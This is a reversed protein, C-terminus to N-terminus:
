GIAVEPLDGARGIAHVKLTESRGRITAAAPPYASADIGARQAVSESVVLEVGLDKALSELRSATNVSDGIATQSV